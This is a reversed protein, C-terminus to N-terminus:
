NPEASVIKWLNNEISLMFDLQVEAGLTRERDENIVYVSIQGWTEKGSTNVFVKVHHDPSRLIRDRYCYEPSSSPKAHLRKRMEANEARMCTTDFFLCYYSRKESFTKKLFALPVTPGDIEFIVGDRSFLFLLATADRKELARVFGAATSELSAQLETGRGESSQVTPGTRTSLLCM